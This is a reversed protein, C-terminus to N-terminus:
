IIIGERQNHLSKVPIEITKMEETSTTVNKIKGFFATKNSLVSYKTSIAIIDEDWSHNESKILRNLHDLYHKAALEFEQGNISEHIKSPDVELSIFQSDGKLTNYLEIDLASSSLNSESLISYYNFPEEEYFNPIFPIHPVSFKICELNENWNIKIGTFAPKSALKLTRIVKSKLHPDNDSILTSSGKGEKAIEKVLYISAGSGIGFSHVRAQYNFEKIKDLVRQVDSICGDTLIFINKPFKVDSSMNLVSAIPNFLETGGFNSSFSEIKNLADQMNDNNYEVSNPYMFEHSSGFSVINFKSNPPISRIFLSLADKAVKIRHGWM